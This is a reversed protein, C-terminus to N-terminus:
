IRSILPLSAAQIDSPRPPPQRTNRSPPLFHLSPFSPLSPRGNLTLSLSYPFPHLPRGYLRGYLRLPLFRAIKPLECSGCLISIAPSSRKRIGQLSTIHREDINRCRLMPFYRTIKRLTLPPRCSVGLQTEPCRSFPYCIFMHKYLFLDKNPSLVFLTFFKNCCFDTYFDPNDPSLLSLFSRPSSPSPQSHPLPTLDEQYGKTILHYKLLTVLLFILQRRQSLIGM